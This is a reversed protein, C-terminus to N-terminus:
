LMKYTLVNIKDSWDHSFSLGIEIVRMQCSLKHGSMKPRLIDPVGELWGIGALSIVIFLNTLWLLNEYFQM